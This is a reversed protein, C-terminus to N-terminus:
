LVRVIFRMRATLPQINQTTSLSVGTTSVSPSSTTSTSAGGSTGSGGSSTTGDVKVGLTMGSNSDAIWREADSVFYDATWTAPASTRDVYLRDGTQSFEANLRAVMDGDAHTHSPISHTHSHTHTHTMNHSHEINILHNTNGVNADDYTASGIDQNGITGFGMIYLGSLDRATYGDLPSGPAVIQNGDMWRFGSPLALIGFDDFPLVAGIPVGTSGTLYTILSVVVGGKLVYYDDAAIDFFIIPGLLPIVHWGSNYYRHIETKGVLYNDGSNPAGPLDLATDVQGNVVKYQHWDLVDWNQNTSPRWGGENEAYDSNIGFPLQSSM